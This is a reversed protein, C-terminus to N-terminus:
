ASFDDLEDFAEERRAAEELSKAWTFEERYWGTATDFEFGLNANKGSHRNKQISLLAKNDYIRIKKQLSNKKWVFMALDCEQIIDSSNKIDKRNPPQGEDHQSIHVLTIIVVNWRKAIGKLDRMVEGVRYALNEKRNKGGEGDSDIYGLHDVLILKTNFKAIGEIIREEIWATTTKSSLSEPSLINPIAHGNDIRQRILEVASQELPFMIPSLQRLKELLFIGMTTKGHGSDGALVILQKERFGGTVDDLSEIGTKYVPPIPENDIQAKIESWWVLRDEGEYNKLTEKLRAMGEESYTESEPSKKLEEIKKSLDIM